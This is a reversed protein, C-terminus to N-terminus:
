GPTRARFFFALVVTKGRFDSLRIPNQLMGYRTSGTIEFDPAEAGPALPEGTQQAQAPDTSILSAAVLLAAIFRRIM